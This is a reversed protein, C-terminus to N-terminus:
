IMSEGPYDIVRGYGAPVPALHFRLTGLTM